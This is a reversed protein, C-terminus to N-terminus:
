KIRWAGVAEEHGREGKPNLREGRGSSCVSRKWAEADYGWKRLLHFARQGSIPKVETSGEPVHFYFLKCPAKRKAV